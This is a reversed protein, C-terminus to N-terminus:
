REGGLQQRASWLGAWLADFEPPMIDARGDDRLRGILINLDDLSSPNSALARALREYIGSAAAGADFGFSGGSSGSGLGAEAGLSLLLFLFRLFKEPTDIQRALVADRRGPHDGHLLAHAVSTRMADRVDHVHVVVFPSLDTLIVTGFESRADGLLPISHGPTTILRASVRVGTPLHPLENVELDVDFADTSIAPTAWVDFRASAVERALRDLERDAKEDETPEVGGVPDYPVVLGRLSSEEGFTAQVGVKKLPGSLEVVFEVNGGFAAQTANASGIFVHAGGDRREAIFVKAHIGILGTNSVADQVDDARASDDLVFAEINRLTDPRLRNLTEVRSVVLVKERHRESVIAIGEDSLFPSIVLHRKGGFLEPDRRGKMGLAHFAIRHFPTPTEWRVTAIRDAMSAIAVAREPPMPAVRMGPLARVLDTLPKNQAALAARDRAGREAPLGDLTVAADWTRDATLNRSSCVLRFRREDGSEYELVWIKPHFLANKRPATVPHIMPELFAVLDSAALPARLEGAQAFVDILDSSRRVADLVAIPDGAAARVQQSGFTLPIELASALDLTFTTGVARHLTFGAPPRLQETLAVRVEPELMRDDCDRM